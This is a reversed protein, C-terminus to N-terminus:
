YCFVQTLLHLLCQFKILDAAAPPKQSLRAVTVCLMLIVM